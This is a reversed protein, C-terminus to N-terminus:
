SIRLDRPTVGSLSAVGRLPSPAHSPLGSKRRERHAMLDIVDTESASWTGIDKLTADIFKEAESPATDFWGDADQRDALRQRFARVVRDSIPRGALWWCRHLRLSAPRNGRIRAFTEKPDAAQHLALRGDHDAVVLVIAHYGEKRVFEMFGCPRRM